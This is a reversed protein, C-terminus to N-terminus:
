LWCRSSSFGPNNEDRERMGCIMRCVSLLSIAPWFSTSQTLPAPRIITKWNADLLGGGPVLEVTGGAASWGGERGITVEITEHGAERLGGAVAAGSRLSVDHESSRGGALVAVKM